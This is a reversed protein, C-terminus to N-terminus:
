LAKVIVDLYRTLVVLIDILAWLVLAIYMWTRHQDPTM